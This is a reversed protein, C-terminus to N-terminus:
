TERYAAYLLQDHVLGAKVASHRMVGEKVYGAKELVRASAASGAFPVALVRILDLDHFAYATTARVVETMIGHGWYARGIWYGIEASLRAIDEGLMLSVSGVAVGDVVIGFSTQVRQTAVHAIYAEGDAVTYPNPFHDRLKEWVGRDNAHHALSPADSAVLPRLLSHACAIQM